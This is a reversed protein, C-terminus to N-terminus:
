YQVNFTFVEELKGDILVGANWLRKGAPCVPITGRGEYIDKATKKLVIQNIGMTMGPMTLDVMISKPEKYNKLKARFYLPQMTKIPRPEIDIIIEKEGHSKICPGHDIDCDSLSENSRHSCSLLIFLMSFICIGIKMGATIANGVASASNGRSTGIDTLIFYVFFGIEPL